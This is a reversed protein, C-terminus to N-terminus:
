ESAILFMHAFIPVRFVSSVWAAAWKEFHEHGLPFHPGEAPVFCHDSHCTSVNCEWREHLM